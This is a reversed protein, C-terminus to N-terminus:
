YDKDYYVLYEGEHNSATLGKWKVFDVAGDLYAVVLGDPKPDM